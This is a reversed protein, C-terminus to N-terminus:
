GFLNHVLPGMIAIPYKVFIPLSATLFVRGEVYVVRSVYTQYMMRKAKQFKSINVLHSNINKLHSWSTTLLVDFSPQTWWIATWTGNQFAFQQWIIIASENGVLVLIIGSRRQHVRSKYRWYTEKITSNIHHKLKSKNHFVLLFHIIIDDAMGCAFKLDTWM